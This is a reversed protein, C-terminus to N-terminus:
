NKPESKTFLAQRQHYYGIAFRGQEQLPLHGPYDGIGSHIAAILKEVNVEAGKNLKSVHHNKLRLLVPLVSGPASSAAGYYRDRITANLGPNADEQTKELVAFLRGLRYGISPNTTDLAVTLEGNHNRNLLAKILAARSYQRDSFEYMAKNSNNAARDARSRLLAMQLLSEPLRSGNLISRTVEGALNPPINEAKGQVALSKLLRSLSLPPKVWSPATIEIAKFWHELHTAIECVTSAHWFRISIRAANPALGLVFFPTDDNRYPNTGSLFSAYLAEVAAANGDADDAAGGFFAPIADELDNKKQAWVVATADGVLFKQRSDRALLHNLATTYAFAAYEGMPANLGQEKGYSRFAARNFSVINGGTSQADRVGKIAPHLDLTATREGTILCQTEGSDAANTVHALKAALGPQDFITGPQGEFGFTLNGTTEAIETWRPHAQAAKLPDNELFRQVAVIAPHDKPARAGIVKVFEAHCKIAREQDDRANHGLVYISNDWLFNASINAARKVSHPVRCNRGMKRNGIGDRLDKIECLRGQSDLVLLFDIAKNEWGVEPLSGPEARVKRQYYDTLSQLIM